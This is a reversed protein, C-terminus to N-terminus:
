ADGSHAQLGPTTLQGAALQRATPLDSAGSIMTEPADTADPSNLRLARQDRRHRVGFCDGHLHRWPGNRGRDYGSGSAPGSFKVRVTGGGTATFTARITGGPCTLQM